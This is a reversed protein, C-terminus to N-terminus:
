NGSSNVANAVFDIELTVQQGVNAVQPVSPIQLNFDSRQITATAKGSIQSNSVAQATVDFTVPKTVDQITLNGTIQFQFSQGIKTSGSLGSIQTPSFTVYEYNGTNLIRNQIMRNRMNSDTALTRADVQIEGVQATSLDSLNVGIQGAVQNTVGVVNNPQGMLEEYITFQAKSDTQSIQFVPLGGPSATAAVQSGSVPISAAVTAAPQTIATQSDAQSTALAQPAAAQAASTSTAASDQLPVAQIPGSATQASGLFWNWLALGGVVAVVIVVFASILLLRKNM